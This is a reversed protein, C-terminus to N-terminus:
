LALNRRTVETMKHSQSVLKLVMSGKETKAPGDRHDDTLEMPDEPIVDGAFFRAMFTSAREGTSLVIRHVKYPKTESSGSRGVILTWDAQRQGEPDRWGQKPVELEKNKTAEEGSWGGEDLDLHSM